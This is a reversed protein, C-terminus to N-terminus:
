IVEVGWGDGSEREPALVVEGERLDKVEETM